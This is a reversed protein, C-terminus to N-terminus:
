VIILISDGHSIYINKKALLLYIIIIIFFLGSFVFALPLSNLPLSPNIIDELTGCLLKAVGSHFTLAELTSHFGNPYTRLGQVM